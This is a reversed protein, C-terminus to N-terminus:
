LTSYRWTIRFMHMILLGLGILVGVRTIVDTGFTSTTVSAVIFSALFCDICWHGPYKLYLRLYIVIQTVVSLDSEQFNFRCNSQPLSTFPASTGGERDGRLQLQSM